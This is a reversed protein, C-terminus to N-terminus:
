RHVDRHVVVLEARALAKDDQALGTTRRRGERIGESPHDRQSHGVTRGRGLDNVLEAADLIAVRSTDTRVGDEGYGVAYSAGHGLMVQDFVLGGLRLAKGDYTGAGLAGSSEGLLFAADDAM